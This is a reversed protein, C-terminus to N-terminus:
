EHNLELKNLTKDLALLTTETRVLAIDLYEQATEYDKARLKNHILVLTGQLTVLERISRHIAWEEKSSDKKSM